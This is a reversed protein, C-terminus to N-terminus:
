GFLDRLAERLKGPYVPKFIMRDVGLKEYDAAVAPSLESSVVIIKGRFPLARLQAVLELGNMRPMHHDTIVLDFGDDAFVRNRAAEGDAVCEIGHGDRSLNLRMVERLEPLDDAYLVRLLKKPAAVSPNTFSAATMTRLTCCWM